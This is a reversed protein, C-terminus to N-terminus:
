YSCSSSALRGIGDTTDVLRGTPLPLNSEHPLNLDLCWGDGGTNDARMGKMVSSDDSSEPLLLPLSVSPAM